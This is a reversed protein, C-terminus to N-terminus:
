IHLQRGPSLTRSVKNEFHSCTKLPVRVKIKTIVYARIQVMPDIENKALILFRHLFVINEMRQRVDLIHVRFLNLEFIQISDHALDREEALIWICKERTLM